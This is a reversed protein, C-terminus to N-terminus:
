AAPYADMFRQLRARCWCHHYGPTRNCQPWHAVASVRRPNRFVNGAGSASLSCTIYLCFSSRVELFRDLSRGVHRIFRDLTIVSRAATEDRTQFQRRWEIVVTFRTAAQGRKRPLTRSNRALDRHCRRSSRGHVNSVLHSDQPIPRIFPLPTCDPLPIIHSDTSKLLHVNCYAPSM